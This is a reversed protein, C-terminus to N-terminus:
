LAHAQPCANAVHATRHIRANRVIGGDITVHHRIGHDTILKGVAPLRYFVWAGEPLREVLGASTLFKMHRSLRPQSMALIDVLEGVALEGHALLALVRLRTRDPPRTRRPGRPAFSVEGKANKLPEALVEGGDADAGHGGAAAQAQQAAEDERQLSPAGVHVDVYVHARAAAYM